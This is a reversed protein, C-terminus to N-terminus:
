EEAPLPLILKNVKEIVADDRVRSALLSMVVAVPVMVEPVDPDIERVAVAPEIPM